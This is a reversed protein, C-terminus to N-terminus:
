HSSGLLDADETHRPSFVWRRLRERFGSPLREEPKLGDLEAVTERASGTVPVYETGDAEAPELRRQPYAIL